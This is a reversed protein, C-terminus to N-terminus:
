KRFNLFDIYIGFFLWEFELTCGYFNLNVAPLIAFFRWDFEFNFKITRKAQTLPPLYELDEVM